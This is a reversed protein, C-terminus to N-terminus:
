PTAGPEETLVHLVQPPRPTTTCLMFVMRPRMCCCTRQGVQPPVPVTTSFYQPVHSPFPVFLFDLCSVM